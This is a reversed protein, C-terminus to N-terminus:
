TMGKIIVFSRHLNNHVIKTSTIIQGETDCQIYYTKKTNNWEVYAGSVDTTIDNFYEMQVTDFTNESVEKPPPNIEFDNPRFAIREFLM